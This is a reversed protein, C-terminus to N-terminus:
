QDDGNAIELLVDAHCPASDDTRRSMGSFSSSRAPRGSTGVLSPTAPRASFRAFTGRQTATIWSCGVPRVGASQAAAMKPRVCPKLREPRFATSRSLTGSRTSGPLPKQTTREGSAFAPTGPRKQHHAMTAVLQADANSATATGHGDERLGRTRAISCPCKKSRAVPVASRIPTPYTNRKM